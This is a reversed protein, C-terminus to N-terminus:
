DTVKKSPDAEGTKQKTTELYDTFILDVKYGQPDRAEHLYVEHFKPEPSWPSLLSRDQSNRSRALEEELYFTLLTNKISLYADLFDLRSSNTFATRDVSTLLRTKTPALLVDLLFEKEKKFENGRQLYKLLCAEILRLAFGQHHHSTSSLLGLIENLSFARQPLNMFDVPDLQETYNIEFHRGEDVASQLASDVFTLTGERDIRLSTLDDQSKQDEKYQEQAAKGIDEHPNLKEGKKQV